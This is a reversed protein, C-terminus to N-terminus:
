DAWGAPSDLFEGRTLQVSIRVSIFAHLLVADLKQSETEDLRSHNHLCLSIKFLNPGMPESAIAMSGAIGEQSRLIAGAIQENRNRVPEFERSAYFRFPVNVRSTSHTELTLPGTKIERELAERGAYYRRGEIILENVSQFSQAMGGGLENLRASISGVIRSMPHLFRLSAILSPKEAQAQAVCEVRLCSPATVHERVGNAQPYLQGFKYRRWEKSGHGQPQSSFDEERAKTQITEEFLVSNM